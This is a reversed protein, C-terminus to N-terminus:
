PLALSENTGSVTLGPEPGGAIAYVRGGLSVVGLGHRRSPLDPLRSWRGRALDYGYVSGIAGAPEEGGVSVLMGAAVAAGTGGRASPVPPLRRWRREGPSYSEFVRLNTDYGARRGALAYVRGGAATVALHERPTPGPIASWRRTRLDLAFAKSALGAPGVGGVVYLKGGIVAAGGAARAAPLAPLAAWRGAELVFAFRLRQGRAEGYGGAVYLKGGAAAAMAHNVAVPLDPLRTWSDSAPSYLDVERSSGGDALFGGVVAIQGGVVAAAVESRPTPLEAGSQWTGAATLGAVVLALFAAPIM